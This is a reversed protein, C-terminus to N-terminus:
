TSWAKEEEAADTARLLETRAPLARLSVHVVGGGCMSAGSGHWPLVQTPEPRDASGGPVRGRDRATAISHLNGTLDKRQMSEM